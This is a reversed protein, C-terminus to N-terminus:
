KEEGKAEKRDKTLEQRGEVVDITRLIVAVMKYMTEVAKDNNGKALADFVKWMQCDLIDDWGLVGKEEAEALRERVRLLNYAIKDKVEKTTNRPLIWNCFAPHKLRAYAYHQRIRKNHQGDYQHEYVIRPPKTHKQKDTTM